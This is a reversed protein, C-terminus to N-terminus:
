DSYNDADVMVKIHAKHVVYYDNGQYEFKPAMPDTIILAINGIKVEEKLNSARAVVKFKWHEDKMAEKPLILGSNTTKNTIDRILVYDNPLIVKSVDKIKDFIEM